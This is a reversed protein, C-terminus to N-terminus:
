LLVVASCIDYSKENYVDGGIICAQLWVDKREHDEYLDM